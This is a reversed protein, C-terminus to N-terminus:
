QSKHSQSYAKSRAAYAAAERKIDEEDVTNYQVVKGLGSFGNSASATLTIQRNELTLTALTVTTEYPSDPGIENVIEEQQGGLWKWGDPVGWVVRVNRLIVKSTIRGKFPLSSNLTLSEFQPQVSLELPTAIKETHRISIAPYSQPSRTFAMGVTLALGLSILTLLLKTKM